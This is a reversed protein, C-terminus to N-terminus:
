QFPVLLEVGVAKTGASPLRNEATVDKYKYVEWGEDGNRMRYKSGFRLNLDVIKEAGFTFAM